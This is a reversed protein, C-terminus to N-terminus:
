LGYVVIFCIKPPPPEPGTRYRFYFQYRLFPFNTSTPFLYLVTFFITPFNWPNALCKPDFVKPAWYRYFRFTPLPRQGNLDVIRSLIADRPRRCSSIDRVSNEMIKSLSGNHIIRSWSFVLSPTTCYVGRASMVFASCTLILAKPRTKIKLTAIVIRGIIHNNQSRRPNNVVLM